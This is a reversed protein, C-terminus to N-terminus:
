IAYAYVNSLSIFPFSSNRFFGSTWKDLSKGCYYHYGKISICVLIILIIPILLYWYYRNQRHEPISNQSKGMSTTSRFFPGCITFRQLPLRPEFGRGEAQFASARGVSSSGCHKKLLFGITVKRGKTKPPAFTPIKKQYALILFVGLRYLLFHAADSM